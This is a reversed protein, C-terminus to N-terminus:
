HAKTSLSVFNVSRVTTSASLFIYFLYRSWSACVLKAIICFLSSPLARNKGRSLGLTAKGKLYLKQQWLLFFKADHNLLAIRPRTHALARKWKYIETIRHGKPRSVCFSAPHAVCLFCSCWKEEGRAPSDHFTNPTIISCRSNPAFFIM